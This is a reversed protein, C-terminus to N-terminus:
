SVRPPAAGARELWAAPTALDFPVRRAVVADLVERCTGEATTVVESPYGLEVTHEAFEEEDDVYVDGGPLEVVDLDLDVCGVSRGDWAPPTTVDVYVRVKGGAAHFTAVWGAGDAPLLTVQDVPAVYDAGPRSFHTGTPIHVWDGHEDAGLYRAPFEWHPLGGWKSMVCRM